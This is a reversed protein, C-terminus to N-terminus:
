TESVDYISGVRELTILMTPPKTDEPYQINIVQYQKGDHMVAVDTATINERKQCEILLDAKNDNQMALNMRAIGVTKISCRMQDKALMSKVPKKGPIATTKVEYFKVFGDNFTQQKRAQSM